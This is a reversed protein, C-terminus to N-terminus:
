RGSTVAGPCAPPPPLTSWDPGAQASTFEATPWTGCTPTATIRHGAFAIAFAILALLLLGPVALAVAARSM